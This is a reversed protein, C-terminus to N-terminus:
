VAPGLLAADPWGMLVNVGKGPEKSKPKEPLRAALAEASRETMQGKWGTLLPTVRIASRNERYTM